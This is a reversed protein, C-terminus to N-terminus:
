AVATAPASPSEQTKAILQGSGRCMGCDEVHTLGVYRGTGRCEPCPANSALDIEFEDLGEADAQVMALVNWDDISADSRRLLAAVAEQPTGGQSAHNPRASYWAFWNGYLDRRGRIQTLPNGVSAHPPTM